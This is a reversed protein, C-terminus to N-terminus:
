KCNLNFVYILVSIIFVFKDNNVVIKIKINKM